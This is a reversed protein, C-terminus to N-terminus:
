SANGSAQYAVNVAARFNQKLSTDGHFEHIIIIIIIIIHMALACFAMTLLQEDPERVIGDLCNVASARWEPPRSREHIECDCTVPNGRM